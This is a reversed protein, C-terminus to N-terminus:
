KEFSVIINALKKIGNLNISKNPISAIGNKDSFTNRFAFVYSMKRTEDFLISAIVVVYKNDASWSFSLNNSNVVLVSSAIISLLLKKSKM